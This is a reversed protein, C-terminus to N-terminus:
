KAVCERSSDVSCAATAGAGALGGRVILRATCRDSTQLRGLPGRHQLAVSVSSVPTGRRFARRTCPMSGTYFVISMCLRGAVTPTAVLSDRVLLRRRPRCKARPPAPSQQDWSAAALPSAAAAPSCTEACTRQCLGRRYHLPSATYLVFSSCLRWWLRWCDPLIVSHGNASVSKPATAKGGSSACWGPIM